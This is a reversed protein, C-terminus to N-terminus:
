LMLPKSCVTLVAVHLYMGCSELRRDQPAESWSVKCALLCVRCANAARM